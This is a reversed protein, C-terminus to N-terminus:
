REKDAPVAQLKELLKGITQRLSQEGAIQKALAAQDASKEDYCPSGAYAVYYYYKDVQTIPAPNAPSYPSQHKAISRSLTVGADVKCLNAQVLRRFTFAARDNLGDGLYAYALDFTEVTLPVRVGWEDISLYLQNPDTPPVLKGPGDKNADHAQAQAPNVFRRGDKTLCVEPYSEQIANGATQCLAFSTISAERQAPRIWGLWVVFILGIIALAILLWKSLALEKREKRNLKLKYM